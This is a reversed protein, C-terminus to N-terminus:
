TRNLGFCTAFVRAVSRATTQPAGLSSRSRCPHLRPNDGEQKCCAQNSHGREGREACIQASVEAKDAGAM